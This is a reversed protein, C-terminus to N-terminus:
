KERTEMCRAVRQLCSAATDIATACTIDEGTEEIKQITEASIGTQDMIQERVECPLSLFKRALVLVHASISTQLHAIALLDLNVEAQRASLQVQLSGEVICAHLSEMLEDLYTFVPDNRMTQTEM